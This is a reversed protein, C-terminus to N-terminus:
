PTDVPKQTDKSCTHTDKPKNIYLSYFAARKLVHPISQTQKQQREKERKEERGREMERGKERERERQGEGEGEEEGSGRERWRVRKEAGAESSRIVTILPRPSCLPETVAM